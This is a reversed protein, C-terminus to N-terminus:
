AGKQRGTLSYHVCVRGISRRISRTWRLDLGQEEASSERADKTNRAEHSEPPDTLVPCTLDVFRVRSGYGSVLESRTNRLAVPSMEVSLASIGAEVSTALNTLSGLTLLIKYPDQFLIHV